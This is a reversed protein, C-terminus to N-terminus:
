PRPARCPVYVRQLHLTLAGRATAVEACGDPRDYVPSSDPPLWALTVLCSRGELGLGLLPFLSLKREPVFSPSGRWAQYSHSSLLAAAAAKQQAAMSTRTQMLTILGRVSAEYRATLERRM